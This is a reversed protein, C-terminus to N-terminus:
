GPSRQTESTTTVRRRQERVFLVTLLALVGFVTCQIVPSLATATVISLTAVALLRAAAEIMLGIGWVLTLLRLHQRASPREWLAEAAARAAPEPGALDINIRYILPKETLLSGLFVAGFLGTFLSDKLLAFAVNGTAYSLGLGALIGVLSVVAIIGVRRTQVAEIIMELVPSLAALAIAQLPPAGSRLQWAIVLLPLLVSLGIMRILATM